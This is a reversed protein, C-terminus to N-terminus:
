TKIKKKQQQEFYKELVGVSKKLSIYDERVNEAEEKMIKERNQFQQIEKQLESLKKEEIKGLFEKEKIGSRDIYRQPVQSGISWGYRKCLQFYDMSQGAYYTASSHRMLHPNVRKKLTREGLKGLLKRTGAYTSPYLQSSKDEKTPHMELWSKLIEYSKNWFLGITRGQTKSYEERITIRFYPMNADQVDIIDALRINLFEEIRAGSDFLLAVLVKQKLTNCGRLLHDIEKEELAPIEKKQFDTSIWDTLKEYKDKDKLTYRLFMILVKKINAKTQEAYNDGGLKKVKNDDLSRVFKEMNKETVKDLDKKLLRVAIKLLYINKTRSKVGASKKRSVKISTKGLANADIFDRILKENRKSLDTLSNLAQEYKLESNGIDIKEMILM